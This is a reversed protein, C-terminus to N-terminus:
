NEAKVLAASRSTVATFLSTLAIALTAGIAIIDLAFGGGSGIVLGAAMCIGFARASPMIAVGKAAM